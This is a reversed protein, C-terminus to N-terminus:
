PPIVEVITTLLHKTYYAVWDVDNDVAGTVEILVNGASTSFVVDWAPQDKENFIFETTGIQTAAGAVNKFAARMIVVLGDEDTGASGGTRRALVKAEITATTLTPMEISSITTQTDDETQVFDAFEVAGFRIMDTSATFGNHDVLTRSYHFSEDVVRIGIKIEDSAVSM